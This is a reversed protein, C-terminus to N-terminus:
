KLKKAWLFQFLLFSWFVYIRLSVKESIKVLKWSFRFRLHKKSNLGLSPWGLIVLFIPCGGNKKAISLFEDSLISKFRKKSIFFIVTPYNNISSSCNSFQLQKQWRKPVSLTVGTFRGLFARFTIQDNEFNAHWWKIALHLHGCFKFFIPSTISKPHVNLISRAM